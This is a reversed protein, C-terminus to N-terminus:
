WRELLSGKLIVKRYIRETNRHGPYVSQSTISSAGFHCLTALQIKALNGRHIRFSPSAKSIRAHHLFEVFSAPPCSSLKCTCSSAEVGTKTNLILSTTEMISLEM